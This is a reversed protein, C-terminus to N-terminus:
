PGTRGRGSEASSRQESLRWLPGVTLRSSAAAGLAVGRCTTKPGFRIEDIGGEALSCRGDVANSDEVASNLAEPV